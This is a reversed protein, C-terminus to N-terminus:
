RNGTMARLANRRWNEAARDTAPGPTRASRRESEYLAVAAIVAEREEDTLAPLWDDPAFAQEVFHTTYSGDRFAPQDLAWLHFPLNHVPGHLVFEQLVRRSRAIAQERDEGWVV